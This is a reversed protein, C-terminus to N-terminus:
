RTMAWMLITWVHPSSLDVAGEAEPGQALGELVLNQVQLTGRYPTSLDVPQGPGVASVQWPGGASGSAGALNKLELVGRRYAMDMVVKSSTAQTDVAELGGGGNVFNGGGVGVGTSTNADSPTVLSGDPPVVSAPAPCHHQNPNGPAALMTIPLSMTLPEVGAWSLTCDLLVVHVRVRAVPAEAV